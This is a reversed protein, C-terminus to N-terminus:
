VKTVIIQDNTKDIKKPFNFRQGNIVASVDCLYMKLEFEDKEHTM